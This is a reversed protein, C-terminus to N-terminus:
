AADGVYHHQPATEDALERAILDDAIKIELLRQEAQPLTVGRDFIRIRKAQVDPDGWPLQHVIYTVEATAEGLVGCEVTINTIFGEVLKPRVDMYGQIPALVRDTRLHQLSEAHWRHPTQELIAGESSVILFIPTHNM